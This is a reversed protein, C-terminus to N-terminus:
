GPLLAEFQAYDSGDIIRDGNFDANWRSCAGEGSPFNQPQHFATLFLDRDVMNVNGDCNMDGFISPVNTVLKTALEGCSSGFLIRTYNWYVNPWGQQPAESYAIGDGGQTLSPCGGTRQIAAVPTQPECQPYPGASGIARVSIRYHQGPLFEIGQLSFGLEYVPAGNTGYGVPVDPNGLDPQNVLRYAYTGQFPSAHFSPLGEWVHIEWGLMSSPVPIPNGYAPVMVFKAWIEAGDQPTAVEYRWTTIFGNLCLNDMSM